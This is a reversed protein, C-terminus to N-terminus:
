RRSSSDRPKKAPRTTGPSPSPSRSRSRTRTRENAAHVERAKQQYESSHARMGALEGTGRVIEKEQTLQLDAPFSFRKSRLIARFGSGKTWLLKYTQINSQAQRQATIAMTIAEPGVAMTLASAASAPGRGKSAKRAKKAAKKTKKELM